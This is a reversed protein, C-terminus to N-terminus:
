KAGVLLNATLRIRGGSVTTTISYVVTKEENFLTIGANNKSPIFTNLPVQRVGETTEIKEVPFHNEIIELVGNMSMEQGAPIPIYEDELYQSDNREVKSTIWEIISAEM